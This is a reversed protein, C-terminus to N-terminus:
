VEGAGTRAVRPEIRRVPTSEYISAGAREAAEGLGRVLTAPQVRACHAFWRAALVGDVAVRAQAQTGDLLVSDEDGLGWERDRQVAARVRGAHLESQAVTLAGGKKFDCQIGEREAIRGIEDVTEHMARELSMVGDRGGRAAWHERDGALSGEVWGGNRGSAGFGVENAELVVVELSPERRLLEYATWIGTFGGGVICVDATRTRSLVPRPPAPHLQTLWFSVAAAGM